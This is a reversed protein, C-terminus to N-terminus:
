YSIDASKRSPLASKKSKRAQSTNKVLGITECYNVPAVICSKMALNRYKEADDAVNKARTGPAVPRGNRVVRRLMDPEM